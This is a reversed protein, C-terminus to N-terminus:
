SRLNRHAKKKIKNLNKVDTNDPTPEKYFEDVCNSRHKIKDKAKKIKETKLEKNQKMVNEFNDVKTKVDNHRFITEMITDIIEKNQEIADKNISIEQQYTLLNEICKCLEAETLTDKHKHFLEISIELINKRLNDKFIFEPINQTEMDPTLIYISKSNINYKYFSMNDKNKVYIFDCLNYAIYKSSKYIFIVEKKEINDLSECGFANLNLSMNYTNTTNNNTTNNTVNNSNVNSNVNSNIIENPNQTPIINNHITNNCRSLRHHRRLNSPNAFHKNCKNCTYEKVNVNEVHENNKDEIIAKLLELKEDINVNTEIIKKLKNDFTKDTIKNDESIYDENIIPCQTKREHHRKLNSPYKCDLNCRNCISDM